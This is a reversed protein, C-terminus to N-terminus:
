AAVKIGDKFTAGSILEKIREVSHLLRWYKAAAQVLKFAMSLGALRSGAGKTKDTRLRVTAFASEIPNSTRLHVWHEAPFDYFCLLAERDKSLCQAAKPYKTGYTELFRDFARYAESRTAAMWIQQLERKAHSQQGKPLHNLVNATKHVWCRQRRTKPFVKSVAKWFGLAGDGVAVEPDISLGRNKLDWLLEYWSQESEREGDELAVLEKRGDETAGIVVLVCPRANELRVSLYVGDVWLYVYRKEKLSRKKWGEYEELWLQKLRVVTSASLGTADPGLLASLAESFDGTSIGRLYLWPIAAELSRAKRVYPPVIKSSFRICRDAPSTGRDEVRPQRVPIPGIGTQIERHPLYGNRVLLRHGQQDCLDAHQALYANVEAEL